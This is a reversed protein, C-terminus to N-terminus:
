APAPEEGPLTRGAPLEVYFTSGIGLESEVWIRGRHAEVALKCFTLGLGTSCTHMRQPSEVQGFKAFIKERYECPIGPGNDRFLLLVKDQTAEMGVRVSGRAATYKIANNLLNIIVRLLIAEDGTVLVPGDPPSFALERDGKTPELKAMAENVLGALDCEALHLTMQEAELKSVDLLNNIMASLDDVSWVATQLYRACKGNLGESVEEQLLRLSCAVGTLLNRMDHVVMHTLQDRLDELEQLKWYSLALERGKEQLANQFYHLALHADVRALVEEAQFPKAIYDVAGARFGTVKDAIDDLASIFIVPIHRLAAQEKLRRCVEYGDMEPMMIDLMILDPPDNLAAGLALKGSPVPRVKHGRTKLIESLVQLNAAQDDVILINSPSLPIAPKDM